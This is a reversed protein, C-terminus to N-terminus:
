QKLNMVPETKAAAPGMATDSSPPLPPRGTTDIVPGGEGGLLQQSGAQQSGSTAGTSGSGQAPQKFSSSHGAPAPGFIASGPKASGLTGASWSGPTTYYIYGGGFLNGNADTYPRVWARHVSPQQWVPMGTVPAQLTATNGLPLPADGGGRLGRERERLARQAAPTDYINEVPGIHQQGKDAKAAEYIDQMPACGAGPKTENLPCQYPVSTCGALVLLSALAGLRLHQTKM